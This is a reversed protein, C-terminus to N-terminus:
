SPSTQTPAWRRWRTWGSRPRRAATSSGSKKNLRKIAPDTIISFFWPQQNAGSPATGAALLCREIVERPVPRSDFDRISRRRAIDQHFHAAREVMEQMGYEPRSPLPEQLFPPPAHMERPMADIRNPSRYAMM